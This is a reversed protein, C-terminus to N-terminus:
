DPSEDDEAVESETDPLRLEDPMVPEIIIEGFPQDQWAVVVNRKLLELLALLSVIIEVRLNIGQLVETFTIRPQVLIASEIRTICDNVTFPLRAVVEDVPPPPLWRDVVRQM